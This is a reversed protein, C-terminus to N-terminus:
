REVNQGGVVATREPLRLAQGIRLNNPNVAPNADAIKQWHKSSGYHKAAISSLTDGEAVVHIGGPGSPGASAVATGAARAAGPAAGESSATVEAPIRLKTGIRMSKPDVSPNAKAIAEWKAETGLYRKAIASMTEGSAVVHTREGTGASMGATSRPPMGTSGSLGTNGSLGANGSLPTPGATTSLNPGGGAGLGPGSASTPGTGAAPFGNMSRPANSALGGPAAGTANPNPAAPVDGKGTGGAGLSGSPFGPQTGRAAVGAAGTGAVPSPTANSTNPASTANPAGPAGAAGPQPSTLTLTSPSGSALTNGPANSDFPNPPTAPVTPRSDAAAGATSGAKAVPPNAPKSPGAVSLYVIGGLLLVVVGAAAIKPGNLM